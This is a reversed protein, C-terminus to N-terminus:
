FHSYQPARRVCAEHVCLSPRPRLIVQMPEDVIDDSRLFIFLIEHVYQLIMWFSSLLRLFSTTVLQATTARRYLEGPVSRAARRPCQRRTNSTETNACGLAYRIDRILRGSSHMLFSILLSGSFCILRPSHHLPRMALSTPRLSAKAEISCGFHHLTALVDYM